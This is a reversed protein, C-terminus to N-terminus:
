DFAPFNRGVRLWATRETHIQITTLLLFRAVRLICYHNEISNFSQFAELNNMITAM